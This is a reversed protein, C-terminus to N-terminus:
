AGALEERHHLWIEDLLRPRLESKWVIENAGCGSAERRLEGPHTASVLVVLTSPRSAKIRRTASIGDLTPMRVDMVVM